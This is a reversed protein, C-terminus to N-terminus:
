QFFIGFYEFMKSTEHLARATRLCHEFLGTGVVNWHEYDKKKLPPKNNNNNKVVVTM